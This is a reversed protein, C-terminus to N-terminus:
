VNRFSCGHKVAERAFIERMIVDLQEYTDTKKGSNDIEFDVAFIDVHMETEHTLDDLSFQDGALLMRELRIDLPCKVRILYFGESQLRVYENPQRVDTVVVRLEGDFLDPREQRAREAMRIKDFLKRVWVQPDRERMTQGFWQYLERPKGNSEGFLEHAYRKLEDGFAFRQFGYREVLREAVTDKGSRAAGILGIGIGRIM